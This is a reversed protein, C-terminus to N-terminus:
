RPGTRRTMHVASHGQALSGTAQSSERDEYAAVLGQDALIRPLSRRCRLVPPCKGNDGAPRLRQALWRALGGGDQTYRGTLVIRDVGGMSAVAAGAALLIRYALINRAATLTGDVARSLCGGKASWTSSDLLESLHVKRGLLGRFGSKRTLVDNIEEPGWGLKRAMTLVITPDLEGCTTEGPLGELPTAGSTVMVPRHGIVAALEPRPELCLSLTRMAVNDQLGEREQSAAQHYLGHYGFRRVRDDAIGYRRERDPLDVFFATEFAMVVAAGAFAQLSAQALLHVPPVHMPAEASLAAFRALMRDDV